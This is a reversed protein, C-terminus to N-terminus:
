GKYYLSAYVSTLIYPQRAVTTEVVNDGHFYSLTLTALLAMKVGFYVLHPKIRTGIPM